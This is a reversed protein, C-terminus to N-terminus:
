MGLVRAVIRVGTRVQYQLVRLRTNAQDRSNAKQHQTPERRTPEEVPTTSQKSPQTPTIQGGDSNGGNTSQPSTRFESTPTWKAAQTRAEAMQSPTMSRALRDLTEAADSQLRENSRAAILAWKYADIMDRPGSERDFLQRSLMNQASANGQTASRNLWFLAKARDTPVSDGRLYAVGLREQATAGGLDAEVMLNSLEAASIEAHAPSALFCSGLLFCRIIWRDNRLISRSQNM